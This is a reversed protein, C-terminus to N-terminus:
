AVAQALSASRDEEWAIVVRASVSAQCTAQCCVVGGARGPYIAWEGDGRARTAGCAVCVAGQARSKLAYQAVARRRAARRQKTSAM